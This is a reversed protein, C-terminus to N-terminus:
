MIRTMGLTSVILPITGVNLLIAAATGLGVSKQYKELAITIPGGALRM